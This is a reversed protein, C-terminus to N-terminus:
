QGAECVRFIGDDGECLRTGDSAVVVNRDGNVTTRTDTTTTTTVVTSCSYDGYCNNVEGGLNVQNRSMVEVQNGSATGSRNNSTSGTAPTTKSGGGGIIFCVVAVACVLACLWGWPFDDHMM